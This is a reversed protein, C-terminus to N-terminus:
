AVAHDGYAFTSEIELSTDPFLERAKQFFETFREKDTFKLDLAQDNFAFHDDFRNVAESIKGESLATLASSLIRESADQGISPTDSSINSYILNTAM